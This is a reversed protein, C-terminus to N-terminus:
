CMHNKRHDIQFWPSDITVFSTIIRIISSNRQSAFPDNHYKVVHVKILFGRFPICDHSQNDHMLHICSGQWNMTILSLLTELDIKGKQPM